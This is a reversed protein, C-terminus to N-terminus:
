SSTLSSIMEVTKVSDKFGLEGGEVMVEIIHDKPVKMRESILDLREENHENCILLVACRRLILKRFMMAMNATMCMRKVGMDDSFFVSDKIGEFRRFYYEKKNKVFYPVLLRLGKTRSVEDMRELYNYFENEIDKHEKKIRESPVECFVMISDIRAM